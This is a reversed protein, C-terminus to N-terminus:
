MGLELWIEPSPFSAILDLKEPECCDPRTGMGLGVLRELGSIEDLVERIRPLPAYTNTFAQLYAWFLGTKYKRELREKWFHWQDTLSIGARALGSGSGSPNCFICGEDSITGDRNPCSFGADLPIKQVRCGYRQRLYTSLAYYPLIM